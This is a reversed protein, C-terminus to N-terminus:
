LLRRKWKLKKYRYIGTSFISLSSLIFFGWLFLLRKDKYSTVHRPSSDILFSVEESHSIPWRFIHGAWYRLRYCVFDFCVDSPPPNPTGWIQNPLRRSMIIWPGRVTGWGRLCGIFKQCSSYDKGGEEGGIRRARLCWRKYTHISTNFHRWWRRRTYIHTIINEGVDGQQTSTTFHGWRHIAEYVHIGKSDSIASGQKKKV